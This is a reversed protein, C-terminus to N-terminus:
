RPVAMRSLRRLMKPANGVVKRYRPMHYKAVQGVAALLQADDDAVALLAARGSESRQPLGTTGARRDTREHARTKRPGLLPSFFEIAYRLRKVDIRLRMSRASTARRHTAAQRSWARTPAPRAAQLALAHLTKAGDEGDDPLRHLAHLLALMLRAQRGDQLAALMRERVAQRAAHLAQELRIVDGARTRPWYRHL